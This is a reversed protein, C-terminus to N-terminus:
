AYCEARPFHCAHMCGLPIDVAIKADIDHVNTTRRWTFDGDDWGIISIWKQRADEKQCLAYHDFGHSWAINKKKGREQDTQVVISLVQSKPLTDVQDFPARQTTMNAYLVEVEVTM